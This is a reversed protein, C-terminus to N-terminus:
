NHEASCALDDFTSCEEPARDAKLEQAWKDLGNRHIFRLHGMVCQHMAGTVDDGKHIIADELAKLEAGDTVMVGYIGVYETAGDWMAVSPQVRELHQVGRWLMIQCQREYGGGMGSLDYTQRIM